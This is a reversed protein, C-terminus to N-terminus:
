LGPTLTDDAYGQPPFSKCSAQASVPNYGLARLARDAEDVDDIQPAMLGRQLLGSHNVRTYPLKMQSSVNQSSDRALPRPTNDSKICYVYYSIAGEPKSAWIIVCVLLRM